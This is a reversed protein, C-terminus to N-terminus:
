LNKNLFNDFGSGFNKKSLEICKNKIIDINM